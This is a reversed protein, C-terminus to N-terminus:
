SSGSTNNKAKELSGTSCTRNGEPWFCEPPDSSTTCDGIFWYCTTHNGCPCIPAQKKKVALAARYIQTNFFHIYFDKPCWTIRNVVDHVTHLRLEVSLGTWVHSHRGFCSWIPVLKYMNPIIIVIHYMDFQVFSPRSPEWQNLSRKWM